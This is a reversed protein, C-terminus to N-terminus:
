GNKHKHEKYKRAALDLLIQGREGWGLKNNADEFKVIEIGIAKGDPDQPKGLSEVHAWYRLQYKIRGSPIETDKFYGILGCDLVKCGSEERARTANNRRM